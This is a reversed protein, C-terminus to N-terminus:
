RKFPVRYENARGIFTNGGIKSPRQTNANTGGSYLGNIISQNGYAPGM